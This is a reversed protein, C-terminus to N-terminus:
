DREKLSNFVSFFGEKLTCEFLGVGIVTKFTLPKGQVDMWTSLCGHVNMIVGVPWKSGCILWVRMDKPLQLFGSYGSFVRALVPLVHEECFPVLGPVKKSHPLLASWWAKGQVYKGQVYKLFIRDKDAPRCKMPAM